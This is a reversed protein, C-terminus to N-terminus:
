DSRPSEEGPLKGTLFISKISELEDKLSQHQSAVKALEKTELLEIGGDTDSDSKLMSEIQSKQAIILSFVAIYERYSSDYRKRLAVHDWAPPLPPRPRPNSIFDPLTPGRHIQIDREDESSTYIPSRRRPRSTAKAFRDKESPVRPRASSSSALSTIQSSPASPKAPLPLPATTAKPRAPPTLDTSPKKPLSLDRVRPEKTNPADAAVAHASEETKRKKQLNAKRIAEENADDDERSAKKRKASTAAAADREDAREMDKDSPAVKKSIRMTSTASPKREHTSRASPAPSPKPQLSSSSSVSDRQTPRADVPTSPRLLTEASNGSGDLPSTRPTKSASGPLRKATGQSSSGPKSAPLETTEKSKAAASTVRAAKTTEDKMLVETKPKPGEARAKVKKEKVDKSVVGRKAEPKSSGSSTGSHTSGKSATTGAAASPAVVTNRYRVNDWAPDSEPIKLNKLALRASRAMNLREPETLKWQFPRVELWSTTKLVWPRPM